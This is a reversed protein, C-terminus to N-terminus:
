SQPKAKEVVQDRTKKLHVSEFEPIRFVWGASNASIAKAEAVAEASQKNDTTVADFRLWDTGDVTALEFDIELGDVMRYRGKITAGAPFSVNDRKRAGQVEFKEFVRAIDSPYYESVLKESDTLGDLVFKGDGKSSRTVILTDGNSHHLEARDLRQRPIDVVPNALWDKAESSALLSGSALWVQKQDALRLYAGGEGIAQLLLNEKGLVLDALTRGNKDIVTIGKSEAKPASPDEVQLRAFKNAEQTKPELRRAESLAFLLDQVAKANAPFGDDELVVWGAPRREITLDTGRYRLKLRAISDMGASLQPFLKTGNENEGWRSWEQQVAWIAAAVAILTCIALIRFAKRSM